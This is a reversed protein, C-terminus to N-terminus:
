KKEEGNKVLSKFKLFNESDNLKDIDPIIYEEMNKIREETKPHTADLNELAKVDPYNSLSALYDIYARANINLSQLLDLAYRDAEFEDESDLGKIFLEEEIQDSIQNAINTIVQRPGSIIRALMEFFNYRVEVKVRKLIHKKNIHGLEHALVGLLASQNDISNITGKSILIYGGPLSYANIQDTNLIAFFYEIEQRETYLALSKGLKNLYSTAEENKLVGYKGAIKAFAARGVEKEKEAVELQKEVENERKIEEMSKCSVILISFALVIKLFKM